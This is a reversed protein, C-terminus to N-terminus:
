RFQFGVVLPQFIFVTGEDSDDAFQRLLSPEPTPPSPGGQQAGRGELWLFHANQHFSVEEQGAETVEEASYMREAGGIGEGGM